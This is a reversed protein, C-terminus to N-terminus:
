GGNMMYSYMLAEVNARQEETATTYTPLLVNLTTGGIGKKLPLKQVSNLMATIGNKDAGTRPGITNGLETGAFRGDPMAWTSRGYGIGGSLLSCAGTFVGGRVSRHKGCETWFEDLLRAMWGDALEDDNGYKPALNLLMQREREYGEFNAAIANELTEASILKKRFVLLDIAAFSDAVASAGATEVVGYNYVSGGDDLSKGRAICDDTFLTKVLKAFTARRIEQGRNTIKVWREVFWRVQKM